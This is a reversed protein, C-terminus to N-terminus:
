EIRKVDVEFIEYWQLRPENDIMWDMFRNAADLGRVINQLPNIHDVYPANNVSYQVVFLKKQEDVKMEDTYKPIITLDESM